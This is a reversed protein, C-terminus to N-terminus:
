IKGKQARSGGLTELSTKTEKSNLFSGLSRHELIDPPVWVLFSCFCAKCTLPHFLCICFLMPSDVSCQSDPPM